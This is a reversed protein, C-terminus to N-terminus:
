FEASRRFPLSRAITQRRWPHDAAPPRRGLSTPVVPPDPAAAPPAPDPAGRAETAAPCVVVPLPLTAVGRRHACHRQRRRERQQVARRAQIRPWAEDWRDACVVTRLALMANVQGRDWHMGSGKLRAEVVLKNASEVCGSGIPYGAARFAPYQLLARRRELYTLATVVADADGLARLAAVVSEPGADRLTEAQQQTWRRAQDSDVGWVAQAAQALYGVAHPFDLIRVADPRHLDIFHQCWAAGDTVACVTGATLTGRRHTELTAAWAFTEHDALQAYYSLDSTHIQWAQERASWRPPVVTGLALTKVEGWTGGVLPVFAGDVSLHQIPPGPPVDPLERELRALDDAQDALLAAGAGETLRRTTSTSVVVGTFHTLLTAAPAFPLWAGLRV